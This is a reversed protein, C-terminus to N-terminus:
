YRDLNNTLGIIYLEAENMSVYKTNLILLQENSAGCTIYNYQLM